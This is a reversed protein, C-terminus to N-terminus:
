RGARLLMGSGARVLINGKSSRLQIEGVPDSRGAHVLSLDPFDYLGCADSSFLWLAQRRDNGEVGGRCNGDKPAAAHVLVGDGVSKGVVDSGRTVPGGGHYVSEGGIQETAWEYQSTGRDPGTAPDQAESIDMMTAMTRLNTTVAVRRRGYVVTDFRLAMEAPSGGDAARVSVVHGLVKAGAHLKTGHLLPVDQMVRGRVTDGPKMKNSRLSTDLQVPLITGPPIEQALLGATMLVMALVAISKM